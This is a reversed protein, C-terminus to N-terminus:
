DVNERSMPLRLPELLPFARYYARLGDPRISFRLVPRYPPEGPRVSTQRRVILQNVAEVLPHEGAGRNTLVDLEFVRGSPHVVIGEARCDILIVLDRSGLLRSLPSAPTRPTKRDEASPTLHRPSPEPPDTQEKGSPLKLGSHTPAQPPVNGTTALKPAPATATPGGRDPPARPMLVPPLGTAVKGGSQPVAAPLPPALRVGGPNSSATGPNEPNMGQTGAGKSSPPRSPGPAVTMTEPLVASRAARWPEHGGTESFDLVWDADILEYGFDLKLGQLAAQAEYYSTIGAPRVLMLVYPRDDRADADATVPRFRSLRSEVEQRIERGSFRPGTLALREPHVVLGDATCELYLPKRDSGRRGRYPVLSYTNQERQRLSKLALLTEELQALEKALRELDARPAKEDAPARLSARQANLMAQEAALKERARSLNQECLRLQTQEEHLNRTADALRQSLVLVQQQLDEHERALLAHLDLRQREWEEKRNDALKIKEVAAAQAAELSKHRAVIKARRDIVLLLLILSGMACLLVALFPFTSVQLRQVRRRM